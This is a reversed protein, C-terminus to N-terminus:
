VARAEVRGYSQTTVFGQWTTVRLRDNYFGPTLAATLANKFWVSCANPIANTSVAPLVTIDGAALTLLAIQNGTQDRLLWEIAGAATLDLPNGAGDNCDFEIQWDDGIDFVQPDHVNGPQLSIV